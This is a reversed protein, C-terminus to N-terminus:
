LKNIRRKRIILLCGALMMVIGSILIVNMDLFQGTKPLDGGKAMITYKSFHTTEFTFKNTSKDFTGGVEEWQKTTENYYYASLKTIDINKFDDATLQITVLVKKGNSFQHIAETEKGAQNVTIGFDFVKGIPTLDWAKNKLMNNAEDGSIDQKSVNFIADKSYGSVNFAGDSLRLDVDGLKLLFGLNSDGAKTMLNSSLPVVMKSSGSSQAASIIINSLAELASEDVKGRLKGLLVKMDSIADIAKNEDVNVITSGNDISTTTGGVQEVAAAVDTNAPNNIIQDGVSNILNANTRLYFNVTKESENGLNDVAKAYFTYDGPTTIYEGNYPQGNLLVTTIHGDPDRTDARLRTEYYVEGGEAGYIDITPPTLDITFGLVEQIIAGKYDRVELNMVHYGNVSYKTGNVFPKDDILINKIDGNTVSINPTIEKYVGKDAVGSINITTKMDSPYFYLLGRDPSGAFVGGREDAVINGNSIGSEKDMDQRDNYKVYINSSYAYIILRNDSTKQVNRFNRFDYGVSYTQGDYRNDRVLKGDAGYYYVEYSANPYRAEKYFVYELDGNENTFANEYELTGAVPTVDEITSLKNIKYLRTSYNYGVKYYLQFYMNNNKDLVLKENLFEATSDLKLGSIIDVSNITKDQDIMILSKNTQIYIEGSNAIEMDHIYEGSQLNPQSYVFASTGDYKFVQNNNYLYISGGYSRATRLSVGKLEPVKKPQSLKGNSVDNVWINDSSSLVKINGLSDKVVYANNKVLSEKNINEIQGSNILTIGLSSNASINKDDLVNFDSRIDPLTHKTVFQNNEFKMLHQGDSIWPNGQADLKIQRVNEDINYDEIVAGSSSLHEVKRGMFQADSYISIIAWVDGTSTIKYDYVSNDRPFQHFIKLQGNDFKSLCKTRANEYASIVTDVDTTTIMWLNNSSDTQIKGLGYQGSVNTLDYQKISKDTNVQTLLSKFTRGAIQEDAMYWQVGNNDIAAYRISRGYSGDEAFYGWVSDATSAKSALDFTILKSEDDNSEYIFLKNGDRKLISFKTSYDQQSSDITYKEAVGNRIIYLSDGSVVATLDSYKVSDYIDGTLGYKNPIETTDSNYETYGSVAAHVKKEHGIPLMTVIIASAMAAAIM